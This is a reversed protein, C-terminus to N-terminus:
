GREWAEEVVKKYREDELWMPEFRFLRAKRRQQRPPSTEKLVLISHDTVSNSLHHLKVRSFVGVWDTSVLARDLRERVWGRSGLRRSWTYNSGVFGMDRLRCKNITERFCRMQGEPRVGGGVKEKAHMIKNFDRM